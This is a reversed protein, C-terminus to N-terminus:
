SNFDFFVDFLFSTYDICWMHHATSGNDAPKSSDYSKALLQPRDYPVTCFFVTFVDVM